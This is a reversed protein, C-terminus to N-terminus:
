VRAAELVDKKSKKYQAFELLMGGPFPEVNYRRYLANKEMLLDEPVIRSIGVAIKALDIYPSALNLTDSQALFGAGWDIMMTLGKERTKQERQKVEIGEFFVGQSM